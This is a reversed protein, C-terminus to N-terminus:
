PQMKPPAPAIEPPSPTLGLVGTAEVQLRRLLFDRPAYADTWRVAALYYLASRYPDGLQRHAM